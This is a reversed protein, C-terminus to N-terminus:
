ANAAATANTTTTTTTTTAAAAAAATTTTTNTTTTTTTTTPSPPTHLPSCIVEFVALNKPKYIPQSDDSNLNRDFSQMQTCM